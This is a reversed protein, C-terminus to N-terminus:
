IDLSNTSDQLINPVDRSQALGYGSAQGTPSALKQGQTLGLLTTSPNALQKPPGHSASVHQHRLWAHAHAHTSKNKCRIM